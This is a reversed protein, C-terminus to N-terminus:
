EYRSILHNTKGLMIKAHHTGHGGRTSLHEWRELRNELYKKFRLPNGCSAYRVKPGDEAAKMVDYRINEADERLKRLEEQSKSVMEKEKGKENLGTM